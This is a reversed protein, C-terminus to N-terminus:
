QLKIPNISQSQITICSVFGNSNVTSSLDKFSHATDIQTPIVEVNRSDLRNHPMQDSIIFDDNSVDHYSSNKDNESLSDCLIVAQDDNENKQHTQTVTDESDLKHNIFKLIDQFELSQNQNKADAQSHFNLSPLSESSTDTDSSTCLSRIYNSAQEITMATRQYVQESSLKISKFEEVTKFTGNNCFGRLIENHYYILLNYKLYASHYIEIQKRNQLM